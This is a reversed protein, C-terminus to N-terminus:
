EVDMGDWFEDYDLKTDKDQFDQELFLKEQAEFYFKLAEHVLADPEKKLIAGYYEILEFDKHSINIM